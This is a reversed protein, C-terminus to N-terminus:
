FNPQTRESMVNGVESSSEDVGSGSPVYGDLVVEEKNGVESSSEDVGSWACAPKDVPFEYTESRQRPNM